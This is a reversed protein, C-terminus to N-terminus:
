GLWNLMGKGLEAPPVRGLGEPPWRVWGRGRKFNFKSGSSTKLVEWVKAFVFEPGSFNLQALYQNTITDINHM